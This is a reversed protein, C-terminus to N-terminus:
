ISEPRRVAALASPQTTRRFESSCHSGIAAGATISPSRKGTDIGIRVKAPPHDADEGTQALVDIILQGM